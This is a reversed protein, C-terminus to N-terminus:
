EGSCTGAQNIPDWTTLAVGKDSCCCASNGRKKCGQFQATGKKHSDMFVVTKKHGPNSDQWM